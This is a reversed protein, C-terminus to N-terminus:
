SLIRRIFQFDGKVWQKLAYGVGIYAGLGILCQLSFHLPLFIAMVFCVIAASLSYLLARQDFVIIEKRLEKIFLFVQLVSIGLYALAAGKGGLLPILMANAVINILSSIITIRAIAKYRKASFAIMWMLNQAFHFPVALSLLGTEAANTYGYKGSTAMSILPGWLTNMIIILGCSAWMELRYITQIDVEEEINPRKGRQLMRAIRPMFLMSIVSIPMRLLEFGRASFTYLGTAANTSLIGMLIWDAKAGLRSDFIVTLAQPASEKLLGVYGRKSVSWNISKISVAFFLSMIILELVFPLLLLLAADSLTIPVAHYMLYCLTGIRLLNSSLSVIAYPLYREKANLLTKFPTVLLNFGQSLFLLPLISL